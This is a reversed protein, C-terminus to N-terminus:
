IIWNSIFAEHISFFSNHVLNLNLGIATPDPGACFPFASVSITPVVSPIHIGVAQHVLKFNSRDRFPSVDAMRAIVAKAYVRFVKIYRSLLFVKLIHPKLSALALTFCVGFGNFFCPRWLKPLVPTFLGFLSAPLLMILFCIGGAHRPVPFITRTTFLPERTRVKVFISGPM